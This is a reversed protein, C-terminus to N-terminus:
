KNCDLVEKVGKLAREESLEALVVGSWISGDWKIMENM